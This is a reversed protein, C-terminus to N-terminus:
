GGGGSCFCSCVNLGDCTLIVTRYVTCVCSVCYAMAAICDVEFEFQIEAAQHLGALHLCVGLLKSGQILRCPAPHAPM